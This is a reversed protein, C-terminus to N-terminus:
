IDFGMDDTIILDIPTKESKIIEQTESDIAELIVSTAEELAGTKLSLSVKEKGKIEVEKPESVIRDDKLAQLIINRGGSLPIQGEPSIGITIISNTIKTPFNINLEVREPKEEREESELILCPVAIEQLSLGGHLYRVNGGRARFCALGRPVAFNLDNIEINMNRFFEKSLTFYTDKDEIHSKSIAYRRRVIDNKPADVKLEEPLKETYVFGHDATVYFKTYGLTHLKRVAKEVNKVHKSVQALVQEDNDLEEGMQDIFQSFIIRPVQDEERLSKVPSSLFDPLNTVKFGKAELIEVRDSKNKIEQNGSKVRLKGNLEFSLEKGLHATMGTKTTTPVVGSLIDVKVDAEIERISELRESLDHALEYRLGDCIILATSEEPKFDRWYEIQGKGITKGIVLKETFIRNMDRLFKMYVDTIRDGVEEMNEYTEVLDMKSRVYKRYERDIEWGEEEYFSIIDELEIEEDIKKLAEQSNKAAKLGCDLVDWFDAYGNEYWFKEKRDEIIPMIESEIEDIDLENGDIIKNLCLERLGHDIEPFASSKWRLSDTDIVTEKIDPYEERLNIIYKIYSDKEHNQWYECLQAAKEPKGAAVNSYKDAPSNKHLESFVIQKAIESTDMGAEIGYEDRLLAKWVDEQEYNKIVKQPRAPRTLYEVIFDRPNFHEKQFLVCFFAETLKEDDTTWDKMYKEPIRDTRESLYRAAPDATLKVDPRYQKGLRHIDRLWEADDRNEPIYLLWKQEFDPDKKWMEYKLELYSGDYRLFNIDEELEKEIEGLLGEYKSKPDYWVWIRHRTFKDKIESVIKEEVQSM